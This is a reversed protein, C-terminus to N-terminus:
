CREYPDGNNPISADMFFGISAGAHPYHCPSNEAILQGMTANWIAQYGGMYGGRVEEGYQTNM